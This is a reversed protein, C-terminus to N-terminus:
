PMKVGFFAAVSALKASLFGALSAMGLLAWKAGKAKLMLEHMEAVQKAMADIKQEMHKQNAELVAIREGDREMMKEVSAAMVDSIENARQSVIRRVDNESLM